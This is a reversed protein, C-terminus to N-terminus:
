LKKLRGLASGNNIKSKVHINIGWKYKSFLKDIKFLPM